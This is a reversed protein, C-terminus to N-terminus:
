FTRFSYMLVTRLMKLQLKAFLKRALGAFFFLFFVFFFLESHFALVGSCGHCTYIPLPALNYYSYCHSCDIIRNNQKNLRKHLSDRNNWALIDAGHRTTPM